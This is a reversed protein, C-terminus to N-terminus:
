SVPRIWGKTIMMLCPTLQEVDDCFLCLCMWLCHEEVAGFVLSNCIPSVCVALYSSGQTHAHTHTHSCEPFSLIGEQSGPTCLCVLIVHTIGTNNEGTQTPELLGNREAREPQRINEEACACWESLIEDGVREQQPSQWIIYCYM